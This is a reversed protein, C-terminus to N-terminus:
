SSYVNEGEMVEGLTNVLKSFQNGTLFDLKGSFWLVFLIDIFGQIIIKNEKKM